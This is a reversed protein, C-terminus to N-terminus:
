SQTRWSGDPQRCATGKIQEQRGEIWADIAYERCYTQTSQRYARRPTVTYRHGSEPNLWAFSQHAPVHELVQQVKMRDVDDMVRGISGGIMAGILTGAIVAATRGRGDGIQAGGVGGLVGGVVTGVDQHTATGVCGNLALTASVALSSM